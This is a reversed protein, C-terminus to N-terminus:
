ATAGTGLELPVAGANKARKRSPRRKASRRREPELRSLHLLIGMSACTIVMSTGGYSVLPLTLGKTPLVAYAVGVNILVHICLLVVLGFGLAQGFTDPARRAAAIGRWAIVAYVCLLLATGVLGLEEGLVSIIFDTQAEPIYGFKQQGRGLGVGDLGGSALAALSNITVYGAGDRHAWPDIFAMLRTARMSSDRILHILVPIAALVTGVIYALRTGAVFLMTVVVLGFIICSGFDPQMLATVAFFGAVMLPPAYGRALSHVEDAKSQAIRAMYLVLVVKALESPQFMFLGLDFWRTSKNATVGFHPVLLMALATGIVLPPVLTQLRRYPIHAMVAMVGLGLVAFILNRTFFHLQDGYRESGVFISASLVMVLGGAMLGLIAWLLVRDVPGRAVVTAAEAASKPTKDVVPPM